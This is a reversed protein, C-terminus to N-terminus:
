VATPVWAVAVWRVDVDTKRPSLEITEVPLAMPELQDAIAQTEEALQTELEELQQRHADLTDQSRRVEEAQRTMKGYGRATSTARGLGTTSLKKRGLLAGLVTAGFNIATELKSSDAQQQQRDVTQESKRVREQLTTLKTAYKQRLKTVRLDREERARDALRIRFDREDEGSESFAGLLDCRYALLRQTRYLYESLQKASDQLTKNQALLAPLRRYRSPEQPERRLDSEALDLTRSQSWDLALSNEDVPLAVLLSKDASIGKRQDVFHVKALALLQPTYVLEPAFFVGQPPLFVQPIDPPLAPRAAQASDASRATSNPAAGAGVNFNPFAPASGSPLAGGGSTTFISGPTTANAAGGGADVGVRPSGAVAGARRSETVQKIQTRTMPGTLYSLTWRTEFVVPHSEHVNHMLFVRKGLNSLVESAGARDFAEGGQASAGELGALVRERDRETQLRGIFWTGTNALGKYDLDVPNQTALVVGVGFARAQKLLTLLPKKSPPEAVPPMYGFIEDIYLLARLSTTGPRGRMWGITQNLLLSMFFMRENDSLHAISFIAHRPKGSPTYLLQDIDLPVGRTWAAFSPSAMLNNLSMALTFREKAPFFSELDMVGVQRFPPNQVLQILTALDLSKGQGWMQDFLTTVLIHERSRLPDANVGLLALLSTAMSSSRERMLDGDARVSEPPAEFSSVISIPVGADSGPTYITYEVADALHGIREGGQHWQKLGDQWKQSEKAALEAPALGARRADDANVWPEFDAPRLEPFQLMLNSLDGKPDVILAPIGDIAAEELLGVGLGTKGSGTMGVIVAHTVLDKSDYLLFEGTRQKAGLDYEKGLYFVGLKEYIDTLPDM